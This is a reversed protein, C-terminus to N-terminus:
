LEADLDDETEDTFVNEDNVETDKRESYEPSLIVEFGGDVMVVEEFEVQDSLMDQFLKYDFNDVVGTSDEFVNFPIFYKSDKQEIFIKSIYEEAYNIMSMVFRKLSPCTNFANLVRDWDNNASIPNQLVADPYVAHEAAYAKIKEILDEDMDFGEVLKGDAGFCLAENIIFDYLEANVWKNQMDDTCVLNGKEDFDSTMDDLKMARFLRDLTNLEEDRRDAISDNYMKEEFAKQKPVLVEMLEERYQMDCIRDIFIGFTNLVEEGNPTFVRLDGFRGQDCIFDAVENVGHLEKKENESVGILHPYESIRSM